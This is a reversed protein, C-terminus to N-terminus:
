LPTDERPRNRGFEHREGVELIEDLLPLIARLTATIADCTQDYPVGDQDRLLTDMRQLKNRVHAMKPLYRFLHRDATTYWDPARETM